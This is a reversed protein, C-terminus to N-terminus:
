WLIFYSFFGPSYYGAKLDKKHRARYLIRRKKDGHLLHPYLNLRTLDRYNEYEISGFPVRIIKKDTKRQLVADYKKRKTKSKTYGVLKYDTKKYYVM